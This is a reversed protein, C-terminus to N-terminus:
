WRPSCPGGRQGIGEHGEAEGADTRAPKRTISCRDPAGSMGSEKRRRPATKLAFASAMRVIAATLEIINRRVMKRWCICPYEARDAPRAKRGVARTKRETPPKREALSTVRKPGM